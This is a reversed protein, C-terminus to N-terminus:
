VGSKNFSSRRQLCKLLGHIPDPTGAFYRKLKRQSMGAKLLKEIYGSLEDYHLQSTHPVVDQFWSHTLIESLSIRVPVPALCKQIIERSDGQIYDPIHYVGELIQLRTARDNDSLSFCTNASEMAFPLYGTLMSYLVVGLSWVDSTKGDYPQFKLIEPATYCVSGCYEDILEESIETALGFDCLKVQNDKTVLINELKVDRHVIGKKHCYDIAQCLQYFLNKAELENLRGRELKAYLEEGDVFEMVIAEVEAMEIFEYLETINPHSLKSLAKVERHANQDYMVKIAVNIDVM